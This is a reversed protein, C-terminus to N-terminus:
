IAHATDAIWRIREEPLGDHISCDAGLIYGKGGGRAILM